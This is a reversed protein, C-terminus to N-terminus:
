PLRGALLEDVRTKSLGRCLAWLRATVRAAAAESPPAEHFVNRRVAAAFAREDIADRFAQLRGGLAGMMRGVHKGVVHDGIGIQRLSADMDAVFAETLLLLPLRGPEGAAKLRLLVLATVAAVMDFRGDITDPVGGDRYWFPDRGRAVIAGYLPALAARESRGGFMRQFISLISAEIRAAAQAREGINM